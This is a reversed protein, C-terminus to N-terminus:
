FSFCPTGTEFIVLSVVYVRSADPSNSSYIKFNAYEGKKHVTVKEEKDLPIPPATTANASTTMKSSEM